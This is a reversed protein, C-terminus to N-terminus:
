PLSSIACTLKFSCSRASSFCYRRLPLDEALLRVRALISRKASSPRSSSNVNSIHISMSKLDIDEDNLACLESARLFAFFLLKLMALHKLNSIVSFIRDVDEAVFFHPIKNDPELRKICLSQGIMKHYAKAAYGYQNLTSRSLKWENLSERFREYDKESPRETKAFRLYRSTNGAYEEITSDRFGQDKLYRRFRKIANDFNIFEARNWDVALKRPM